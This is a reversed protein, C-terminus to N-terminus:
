IEGTRPWKEHVSVRPRAGHLLSWPLRPRQGRSAAAGWSPWGAGLWAGRVSAGLARPTGPSCVGRVPAGEAPTPPPASVSAPFGLRCASQTELTKFCEHAGTHSGGGAATALPVAASVCEAWACGAQPVMTGQVLLIVRLRPCEVGRKPFSQSFCCYCSSWKFALFAKLRRQMKSFYIGVLSGQRGKFTQGSADASLPTM